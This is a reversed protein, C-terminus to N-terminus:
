QYGRARLDGHQSCGFRVIVAQSELRQAVEIDQVCPRILAEIADGPDGGFQQPHRDNSHAEDVLVALPEFRDLAEVHALRSAVDGETAMCDVTAVAQENDGICECIWPKGVVGEDGVGRADAEVRTSRHACCVALGNAGEARDVCLGSLEVRLLLAEQPVQGVHDLRLNARVFDAAQLAFDHNPALCFPLGRFLFM